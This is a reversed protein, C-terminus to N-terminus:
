LLAFMWSQETHNWFTLLPQSTHAVRNHKCVKLGQLGQLRQIALERWVIKGISILLGALDSSTRTMYTQNPKPVNLRQRRYRKWRKEEEQQKKWAVYTIWGLEELLHGKDPAMSAHAVRNHKCVKLTPNIRSGRAPHITVDDINVGRWVFRGFLARVEM